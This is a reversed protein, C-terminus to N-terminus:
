AVERLPVVLGVRQPQRWVIERTLLLHGSELISFGDRITGGGRIRREVAFADGDRRLRVEISGQPTTADAWDGGAPMVLPAEGDYSVSLTNAMVNMTLTRPTVGVMLMTQRLGADTGSVADGGTGRERMQNMTVDSARQTLHDEPRVGRLNAAQATSAQDYNWAGAVRALALTQDPTPGGPGSSACALSGAALITSVLATRCYRNTLM